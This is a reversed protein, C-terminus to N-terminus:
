KIKRIKNKLILIKKLSKGHLIHTYFNQYKKKDCKKNM